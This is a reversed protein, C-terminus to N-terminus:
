GLNVQTHIERGRFSVGHPMALGSKGRTARGTRGRGMMRRRNINGETGQGVEAGSISNVAPRDERGGRLHWNEFRGAGEGKKKLLGYAAQYRELGSGFM